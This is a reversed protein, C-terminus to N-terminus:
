RRVLDRQGAKLANLWGCAECRWWELLEVPPGERNLAGDKEVLEMTEHSCTLRKGSFVCLSAEGENDLEVGVSM